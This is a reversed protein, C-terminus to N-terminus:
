EEGEAEIISPASLVMSMAYKTLCQVYEDNDGFDKAIRDREKKMIAYLADADITRGHKPVPVLPCDNHRKRFTNFGCDSVALKLLPCVLNVGEGDYIFSFDCDFCNEPMEVGKILVSM